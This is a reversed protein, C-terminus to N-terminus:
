VQEQNRPTKKNMDPSEIDASASKPAEVKVVSTCKLGFGRLLCKLAARVQRWADPDDPRHSVPQLTLNFTPKNM